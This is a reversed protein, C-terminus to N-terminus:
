LDGDYDVTHGLGDVLDGFSIVPEDGVLKALRKLERWTKEYQKRARKKTLSTEDPTKKDGVGMDDADSGEDGSNEEGSTNHWTADSEEYEEGDSEEVIEDDSAEFEDDSAHRIGDDDNDYEGGASEPKKDSQPSKRKPKKGKPTEETAMDDELESGEPAQGLLEEQLSFDSDRDHVTKGEGLKEFLHETNGGLFESDVPVLSAKNGGGGFSVVPMHTLHFGHLVKHIPKKDKFGLHTQLEEVLVPSRGSFSNVGRLYLGGPGKQLPGDPDLELDDISHVDVRKFM